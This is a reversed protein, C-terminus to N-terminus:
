RLIKSMGKGTKKGIYYFATSVGPVPIPYSVIGFIGGMHPAIGKRLVGVSRNKMGTFISNNKQIRSLRAGQKYGKGVDVPLRLVKLIDMAMSKSEKIVFKTVAGIIGM